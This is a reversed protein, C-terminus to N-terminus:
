TNPKSAAGSRFVEISLDSDVAWLVAGQEPFKMDSM